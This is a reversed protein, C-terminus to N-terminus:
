DEWYEKITVNTRAESQLAKRRTGQLALEREAKLTFIVEMSLSVKVSGGGM